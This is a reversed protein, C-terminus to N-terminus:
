LGLTKLLAYAEELKGLARQKLENYNEPQVILDVNYIGEILDSLEEAFEIQGENIPNNISDAIKNLLGFIAKEVSEREAKAEPIKKECRVLGNHAYILEQLLESLDWARPERGNMMEVKYLKRALKKARSTCNLIKCFIKHTDKYNM